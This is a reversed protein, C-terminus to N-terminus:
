RKSGECALAHMFEAHKHGRSCVFALVRGRGNTEFIIRRARKARAREAASQRSTSM